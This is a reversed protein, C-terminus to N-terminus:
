KENKFYKILGIEFFKLIKKIDEYSTQYSIFIIGNSPYYIKNKFLFKKFQNIKKNKKSEFFDRQIRNKVIKDTFVIRFMSHFKYISIKLHNKTILKNLNESFFKSKLNLNKFIKKKNKIIYEVTKKGVYTSISNGSFTGGFFVKPQQKNILADIKKSVGIIGIPMGGGFCKGFTSIDPKIKFFTQVSGGNTRLGTIMEDFILIIKNKQAYNKLFILYKRVESNPLSAQIPEILICSIKKKSKDLIKKSIAIDNYPLFKIQSQDYKTLGSSIPTSKFNKDVTFLTRDNSGHWSGTVSMILNKKTVAKSIRISKMVAESGTSCFIFNKFHPFLNKLIKSFNQAQKNPAAMISLKKKIIEKLSRIFIKSQHGLLLSGAAFSLDLYDKNGIIIRSGNANDFLEPNNKYGENLVHNNLIKKKNKM